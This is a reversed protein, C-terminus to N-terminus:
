RYLNLSQFNHNSARYFGKKKKLEQTWNDYFVIEGKSYRIMRLLQVAIKSKHLLNWFINPYRPKTLIAKEIEFDYKEKGAKSLSSKRKRFAALPLDIKTLNANKAFRMWLEFDGAYRYSTDLGGSETYLEKRWFMSEQQLPGLVGERCWGNYIDKSCRISTQPFIQALTGNENLFAYKGGLWKTEPFCTFVDNITHLTWPMYIDDANIWAIIDGTAKEFGKNIADYMGNDPESVYYALQNKYKEIIKQTGDTSAGDIIIYELNPYGQLLVSKITTEIYQAMNYCVTVVSIKLFQEM